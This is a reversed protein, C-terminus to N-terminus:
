ARGGATPRSAVHDMIWTERADRAATRADRVAADGTMMRYGPRHNDADFALRAPVTDMLFIPVHVARATVSFMPRTDRTADRM